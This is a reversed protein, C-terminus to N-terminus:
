LVGVKADAEGAGEFVGLGGDVNVALKVGGEFAVVDDLFELLDEIVVDGAVVALAGPGFFEYLYDSRWIAELLILIPTDPLIRGLLM